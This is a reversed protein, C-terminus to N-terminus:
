LLSTLFCAALFSSSLPTLFGLWPLLLLSVPIYLPVHLPSCLPNPSPSSSLLFPLLSLFNCSSSYSSFLIKFSYGLLQACAASLHQTSPAPTPLHSAPQAPLQLTLAPRPALDPPFSVVISSDPTLCPWFWPLKVLVPFFFIFPFIYFM